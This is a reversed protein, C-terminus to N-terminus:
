VCFRQQRLIPIRQRSQLGSLAIVADPVGTSGHTQWSKKPLYRCDEFVHGCWFQLNEVTISAVGQPQSFYLANGLTAACGCGQAPPSFGTPTGLFFLLGSRM